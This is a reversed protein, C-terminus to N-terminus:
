FNQKWYIMAANGDPRPPAPLPIVKGKSTKVYLKDQSPDLAMSVRPSSALGGGVSTRRNSAYMTPDGGYYGVGGLVDFQYVYSEGSAATCPNSSTPVYSVAQVYGAFTSFDNVFKEGERALFFYGKDNSNPDYGLNTVDTLDSETMMQQFANGGIPASDRMVYFRNEDDRGTDGDRRLDQREGTGIALVLSGRSFSASPPFFFNRYHNVGSGMATVPARFIVGVDWSAANARKAHIDWKWIQGGLDGVYVVDAFGDFDLDLVSPTSAIAYKMESTGISSLGTGDNRVDAPDYSVKAILSGDDLAVMYLARGTQDTAADVFTGSNPDGSDNPTYGGAFIAVWRELCNGDGNDAGCNDGSGLAGQLKVRTIVPESWSEGLDPDTFEWLFKPYPGHAGGTADPDTIDLAIYSNGGERMGGVLVTAWEDKSKSTDTGSGDGLWADAIVPSGDVFYYPHGTNLPVNKVDDLLGGPVFGFRESGDGDDYYGSEVTGATSPDDGPNFDGSDFAHLMGDNAGVYVIRDRTKYDNWFGLYGAERALYRSPAGVIRPSSHFIDGLVASRRETYDNDDDDDFGDEGYLFRMIATRLEGETDIGSTSANPYRAIDIPSIGAIGLDAATINALTFDTRAGAKNTYITRSGNSRLEEGADWIPNPPDAFEGNADLAVNGNADRITGDPDLGYADLHGEWIPSDATPEFYANYFTADYLTRSTPVVATSFTAQDDYIATTINALAGSLDDAQSTTYYDGGGDLAMDKLLPHDIAFGIVHMVVRQVGNFGPGTAFDHQSLYRAIDDGFPFNVTGVDAAVEGADGDADGITDWYGSLTITDQNPEGDSIYIIYSKRCGLDFPNTWAAANEGPRAGWKPITGLGDTPGAFYRGIDLAAASIPTGVSSQPTNQIATIMAGTANAQIPHRLEAGSSAFRMLGFRANDEFTGDGDPDNIARVLAELERKAIVVKAECGSCAPDNMSGSSDLLIMINPAVGGGGTFLELDAAGAHASGASLLLAAAALGAPRAIRDLAYKIM